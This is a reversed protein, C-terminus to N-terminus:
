HDAHRSDAYSDFLDTRHEVRQPAASCARGSQIDLGALPDV